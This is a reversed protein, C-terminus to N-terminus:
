AGCSLASARKKSIGGSCHIPSREIMMTGCGRRVALKFDTRRTRTTFSSEQRRRDAASASAANRSEFRSEALGVVEGTDAIFVRRAAKAPCSRSTVELADKRISSLPGTDLSTALGLGEDDFEDPIPYGLLAIERGVERRCIRRHASARRGAPESPPTRVCRSISIPMRRSRRQAPTRTRNGSPVNLDWAGDIAHQVTPRRQGLRESAVVFGTAYADDNGDKKHEPPIRM